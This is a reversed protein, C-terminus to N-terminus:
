TAKTTKLLYLPTKRSNFNGVVSINFSSLLQSPANLTFPSDHNGAVIIIHPCIQHAQSLFNYYLKYASNAPYATDFVDGAVVLAHPQHTQIQELLWNFFLSHEEDRTNEHLRQGIHWDATHLLCFM